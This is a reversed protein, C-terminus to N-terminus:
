AGDAARPVRELEIGFRERYVALVAADEGEGYEREEQTGDPATVKLNRGGLTIRGGDETVRSCV